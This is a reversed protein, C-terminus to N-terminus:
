KNEFHRILEIEKEIMTVKTPYFDSEIIKPVNLKLLPKIQELQEKNEQLFGHTRLREGQIWQVALHIGCVKDKLELFDKLDIGVELMHCTDLVLGLEENEELVKRIEQVTQFGKNCEKSNLNEICNNLSYDLISYDKITNPHFVLHNANIEKAIESVKSLVKKTAINNDYKDNSVPMHISKFKLSKVFKLTDEEFTYNLAEEWSGFGIEIGDILNSYKQIFRISDARNLKLDRCAGASIAVVM